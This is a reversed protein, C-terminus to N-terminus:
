ISVRSKGSRAPCANLVASIVPVGASELSKLGCAAAPAATEAYRAVVIAGDTSAALVASDSSRGLASSDFIVTDFEFDTRLKEVLEPLRKSSLLENPNVPTTGATIVSLTGDNWLQMVDPLERTGQLVEALGADAELSLLAAIKPDRLNGDVLCVKHGVEAFAVALNTAVTTAGAAPSASTVTLVRTTDGPNQFILQSRLDRYGESATSTPELVPLANTAVDENVEVKAISASDVLEALCEPSRVSKDIAARTIAWAFGILLGIVLGLAARPIRSVQESKLPVAVPPNTTTSVLSYTRTGPPPLLSEITKVMQGSLANALAAGGEPTETIVSIQLLNTNDPVTGSVSPALGAATTNLGLTSIVPDLVLASSLMAVYTPLRDNMLADAYSTGQANERFYRLYAERDAASKVQDAPFPPTEPNFVPYIETTTQFRTDDGRSPVYAAAALTAVIAIIM